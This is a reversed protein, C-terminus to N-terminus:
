DIQDDAAILYRAGASDYDLIRAISGKGLTNPTESWVRINVPAGRTAVEARGFKEDVTATLVKCEQGVLAANSIASHTVFLGRLPRILKATVPIALALAVLMVALGAIGRLLSTPVLPLLWMAALCTVTWSLLVLLSLVVSFPVGNLGMAVLYSALDGIEDVDADTHLEAEILPGSDIDVIGILSMLWYILVVGLLVTYIVSPFSTAADLFAIM